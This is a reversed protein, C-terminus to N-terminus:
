SSHMLGADGRELADWAKALDSQTVQMYRFTMFRTKHGLWQQVVRAPIGARMLRTACTHRATHRVFGKDDALGMMAKVEDPLM